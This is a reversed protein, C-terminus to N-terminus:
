SSCCCATHRWLAWATSIPHSHATFPVLLEMWTFPSYTDIVLVAAHLLALATGLLTLRNHWRYVIPKRAGRVFPYGYLMGLSMGAFLALYAALGLVRSIPWIPLNLIWNM